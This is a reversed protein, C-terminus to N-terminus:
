EEPYLYIGYIHAREEGTSAVVLVDRYAAPSSDVRGDLRLTSLVTGDLGDLMALTGDGSCQLIRGQGQEDYVAVPSSLCSAEMGYAWATEGTDKSLALLASQEGARLGLAERQAPTLGTVTYYVLGDLADRGAVPSAAFGAPNPDAGGETEAGTEVEFERQWFVSGNLANLCYVCATGSGRSRLTEAAYLSVRDSRSNLAMASVVTGELYRNWKTRMTESDVCRVTGASDACYLFRDLASVPATYGTGNDVAWTEPKMKLTGDHYDFSPRLQTKYLCGDKGAAIVLDSTRDILPDSAGASGGATEGANVPSMESLDYLNFQRLVAPSNGEEQGICLYPMGGPHASFSGSLAYGTRLPWRTREGTALDLFYVTGDKAALVVEKMATRPEYPPDFRIRGRVQVSWKLIVPQSPWPFLQAPEEEGLPVPVDWLIKMRCTGEPVTGCAANQRFAGGRFAIVGWEKKMYDSGQPMSLPIALLRSLPAEGEPAGAGPDAGEAAAAPVSFVCLAAALVLTLVLILILRIRKM